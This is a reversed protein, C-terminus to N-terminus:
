PPPADPPNDAIDTRGQGTMLECLTFESPTATHIKHTVIEGTYCTVDICAGDHCEMGPELVAKCVFSFILSGCPNSGYHAPLINFPGQYVTLGSELNNFNLRSILHEGIYWDFVAQDCQHGDEPGFHFLVPFVHHMPLPPGLYIM